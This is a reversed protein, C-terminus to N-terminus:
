KQKSQANRLEKEVLTAYGAIDHWSDIHDPTVAIRSLKNVITSIYYELLDPMDIDEHTDRYRGRISMMIGVNLMSGRGFDGYTQARKDLTKKIAV